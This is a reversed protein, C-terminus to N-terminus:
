KRQKEAAADGGFSARIDDAAATITAREGVAKLFYLSGGDSPQLIVAIMRQGAVPKSQRRMPPGIPKNYTGTVDVVVYERGSVAGTTIRSTRGEARFQGVWRQVNADISGGGPFRFVALEAANKADAFPLGFQMIRMSSSPEQQRWTQPVTLTLGAATIKRTTAKAAPEAQKPTPELALVKAGAGSGWIIRSSAGARDLVLTLPAPLAAQGDAELRLLSREGGTPDPATVAVLRVTIRQLGIKTGVTPDGFENVQYRNPDLTLVGRGGDSRVTAQLTVFRAGALPTSLYCTRLELKSAPATEGQAPATQLPLAAAILAGIALLPRMITAISGVRENPERAQTPNRALECRCPAPQTVDVDNARTTM